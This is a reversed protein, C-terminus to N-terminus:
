KKMEAKHKAVAEDMKKAVAIFEDWLEQPVGDANIVKPSRVKTFITTGIAIVAGSAALTFPVNSKVFNKIKSKHTEM